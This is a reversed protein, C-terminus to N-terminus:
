GLLHDSRGPVRDPDVSPLRLDLGGGYCAILALRSREEGPKGCLAAWEVVAARMGAHTGFVWERFSRFQFGGVPLAPTVPPAPGGPVVRGDGLVAHM